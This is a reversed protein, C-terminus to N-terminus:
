PLAFRLMSWAMAAGAMPAAILVVWGIIRGVTWRPPPEPEVPPAPPRPKPLVSKPRAPQVTRVAPPPPPSPPLPRRGSTDEDDLYSEVVVVPTSSLVTPREEPIHLPEELTVLAPGLDDTDPEDLGTDTPLEHLRDRPPLWVGGHDDRRLAPEYALEWRHGDPDAFWARRGGNLTREPARLVRGGARTAEVLIAEIDRDQRVDHRFSVLGEGATGPGVEPDMIGRRVLYLLVGNLQFVATRRDSRVDAALGLREYFAASREVDRVGLSLAAVHPAFPGPRVSSM